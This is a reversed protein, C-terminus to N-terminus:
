AKRRRLRVGLLGLGTGLLLLSGPEPVPSTQQAVLFDSFNDDRGGIAPDPGCTSCYSNPLTIDTVGTSEFHFLRVQGLGGPGVPVNPYQGSTDFLWSVIVDYTGIWNHANVSASFLVCNTGGEIPVCTYGAPLTV